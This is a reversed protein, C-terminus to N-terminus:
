KMKLICLKTWLIALVPRRPLRYWAMRDLQRFAEPSNYMSCNSVTRVRPISFLYNERLYKKTKWRRWKEARASRSSGELKLRLRVHVNCMRRRMWVSLGDVTGLGMGCVCWSCVWIRNRCEREPPLYQVSAAPPMLTADDNPPACHVCNLSCDWSISQERRVRFGYIAHVICM